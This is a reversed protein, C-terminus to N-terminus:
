AQGDTLGEIADAAFDAGDEFGVPTPIERLYGAIDGLMLDFIEGFTKGNAWLLAYESKDRVARGEDM